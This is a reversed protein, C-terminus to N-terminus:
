PARLVAFFSGPDIKKMSAELSPSVTLIYDPVQGYITITCSPNNPYTSLPNTTMLKGTM